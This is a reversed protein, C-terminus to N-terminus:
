VRVSNLLKSFQSKLRSSKNKEILNVKTSKDLAKYVKPLFKAAESKNGALLGRYEKIIKKLITKRRINQQRRKINQRLAKQASKIKPM